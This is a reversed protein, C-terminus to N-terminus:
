VQSAAAFDAADQATHFAFVFIIDDPNSLTAGGPTGGGSDVQSRYPPPAYEGVKIPHGPNGPINSSGEGLSTAEYGMHKALLKRLSKLCVGVAESM